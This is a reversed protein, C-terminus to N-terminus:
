GYVLDMRVGDKEVRVVRSLPGFSDKEGDFWYVVHYGLAVLRATATKEEWEWYYPGGLSAQNCYGPETAADQGIVELLDKSEM